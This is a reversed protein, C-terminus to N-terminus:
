AHTEPQAAKRGNAAAALQPHQRRFDAILAAQFKKLTGEEAERLYSYRQEGDKGEFQRSPTTLSIGAGGDKRAWLAFGTLRVGQLPGPEDFLIEADALHHRPKNKVSTHYVFRM